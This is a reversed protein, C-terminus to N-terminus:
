TTPREITLENEVKFSGSVGRAKMEALTRDGENDVVGILTVHGRRVIIQIPYSGTPYMGPFRSRLGFPAAFVPHRHGWLMGGAPAYRALFPDSYVAYYVRWRLDDDNNSVPLEEIRNVVDDVRAVQKVAREADRKLTGHAAFGMLTVTGKDYSFALSDFVGYYPLRLLKNQIDEITREDRTQASLTLTGGAVAASVTIAAVTRTWM